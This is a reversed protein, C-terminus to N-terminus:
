FADVMTPMPGAFLTTAIDLAASPDQVHDAISLHDTTILDRPSAFGSYLSALGRVDIKVDGNGGAAVEARGDKVELVYRGNNDTLVDDEVDLHLEGAVGKPYGRASLAAGVDVIRLMWRDMLKAHYTREPLIMLLPDNVSGFITAHDALTFHDQLFTFLRRAAAPTSATFDTLHLQYHATDSKVYLIYVFGEIAGANNLAAYGHAPEGRRAEVRKWFFETRQLNGPQRAARARHLADLAPRDSPAVPRVHMDRDQLNMERLHLHVEHRSGALEYGARRYLPVTAPYLSSIAWGEARLERLAERLLASAAGRGRFEPATAVLAVGNMPVSKGGFYQGCPILALGGIVEENLRCIRFNAAGVSEAYRGTMDRPMNYVFAAIDLFASLERDDQPATVTYNLEDAPM